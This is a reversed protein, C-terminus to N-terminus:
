MGSATNKQPAIGIQLFTGPQLKVDSRSSSFTASNHDIVQSNMSIQGLIGPEQDFRDQTPVQSPASGMTQQGYAALQNEDNPYAAIVTVKVPVTKGDKLRAQDFRLSVSSSGGNQFPQVATVAGLLKTGRPLRTGDPTKVSDDLKAEVADGQKATKADLLRDLHVTVGALQPAPGPDGAQADQSQAFAAGVTLFLAATLALSLNKFLIARQM